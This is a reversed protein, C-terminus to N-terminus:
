ALPLHPLSPFMFVNDTHSEAQGGKRKLSQTQAYAPTCSSNERTHVLKPGLLIIIQHLRKLTANLAWTTLEQLIQIRILM